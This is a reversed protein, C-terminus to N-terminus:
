EEILKKLQVLEKKFLKVTYAVDYLTYGEKNDDRQYATDQLTDEVTDLLVIKEELYSPACLQNVLELAEPSLNIISM